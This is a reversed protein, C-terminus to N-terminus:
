SVADLDPVRGSQPHPVLYDPGGPPAGSEARPDHPQQVRAPQVRLVEEAVADLHTYRREPIARLAALQDPRAREHRAYELLRQRTAPLPVGELLVQLEAAQGHTM